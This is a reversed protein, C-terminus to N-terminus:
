GRLNGHEVDKDDSVREIFVRKGVVVFNFLDAVVGNEGFCEGFLFSFGM